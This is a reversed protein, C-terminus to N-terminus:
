TFKYSIVNTHRNQTPSILSTLPSIGPGLPALPFAQLESQWNVFTWLLLPLITPQFSHFLINYFLGDIEQKM